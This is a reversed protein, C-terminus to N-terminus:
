AGKQEFQQRYATVGRRQIAAVVIRAREPRFWQPIKNLCKIAERQADDRGTAGTQWTCVKPVAEIAKARWKKRAAMNRVTKRSLKVAKAKKHSAAKNSKTM